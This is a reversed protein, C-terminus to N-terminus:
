ECEFGCHGDEYIHYSLFGLKELKAILTARRSSTTLFDPSSSHDPAEGLQFVIIGDDELSNFLSQLFTEDTYLIEAFPIDDQPDSIYLCYLERDSFSNGFTAISSSLEYDVVTSM